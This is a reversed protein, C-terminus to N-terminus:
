PFGPPTLGPSAICAVKFLDGMQDPATLRALQRGIKEAEGPHAAALAAARTEIGLRRLFEGQTLIPGTHPLTQFDVRATLDALGPNELPGEKQHGRLAQLTDGLDPGDHGYDIFLAAGTAAAILVAAEAGFAKVAPSWEFIDGERGELPVNVPAGAVFALDGSELGIRSISALRRRPM